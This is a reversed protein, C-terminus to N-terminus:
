AHIHVCSVVIGRFKSGVRLETILGLRSLKKGSCRRPDCHDFDKSHHTLMLASPLCFISLQVCGCRLRYTLARDSLQATTLLQKSVPLVKTFWECEDEESSTDGEILSSPKASDEPFSSSPLSRYSERANGHRQGRGGRKSSRVRSSSANSVNKKGM